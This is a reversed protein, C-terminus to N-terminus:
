RQITKFMLEKLFEAIIKRDDFANTLKPLHAM